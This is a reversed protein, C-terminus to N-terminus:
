PHGLLSSTVSKQHTMTGRTATSSSRRVTGNILRSALHLVHCDSTRCVTLASVNQFRVFKLTVLNGATADSASLALDQVGAEAEAEDFGLNPRNVFLKVDRPASGDGPGKIRLSHIKVNQSLPITLLLQEDCDSQLYSGDDTFIAAKTHSPSENLCEVQATQIFDRLDDHGVVPGAPVAGAGSLRKVCEQMATGDIHARAHMVPPIHKYM